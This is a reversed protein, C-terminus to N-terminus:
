KWIKTIQEWGAAVIISIIAAQGRRYNEANELNSTRNEVKELRGNQKEMYALVGKIDGRMEGLMYMIDSHKDEM